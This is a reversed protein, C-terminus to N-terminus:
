EPTASVDTKGASSSLQQMVDYIRRKASSVVPRLINSGCNVYAHM